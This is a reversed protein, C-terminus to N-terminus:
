VSDPTDYDCSLSGNTMPHESDRKSDINYVTCLVFDIPMIFLHEWHIKYVIVSYVTNINHYLLITFSRRRNNQM